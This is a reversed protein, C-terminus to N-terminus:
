RQSAGNARESPSGSKFAASFEPSAVRDALERLFQASAPGLLEEVRSNAASWLRAGEGLRARGLATLVAHKSRKDRADPRLEILGDRVLPRLAHTLASLGIALRDAIAQLTPGDDGDLNEIRLMLGLQTAKLGTSAFAEDYLVGLQRTARRLADNTCPLRDAEVAVVTSANPPSTM